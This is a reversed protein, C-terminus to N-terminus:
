VSPRWFEGFATVFKSKDGPASGPYNKPPHSKKFALMYKGLIQGSLVPSNLPTPFITPGRSFKSIIIRPFAIELTKLPM